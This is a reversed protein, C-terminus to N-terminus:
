RYAWPRRRVWTDVPAVALCRHSRGDKAVRALVSHPWRVPRPRRLRPSLGCGYAQRHQAPAQALVAGQAPVALTSAGAQAQNGAERCHASATDRAPCAATRSGATPQRSPVPACGQGM